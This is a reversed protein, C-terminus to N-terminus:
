RYFRNRHAKHNRNKSVLACARKGITVSIVIMREEAEKKAMVNIKSDCKGAVLQSMVFLGYTSTSM